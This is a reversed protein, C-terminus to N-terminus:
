KTSRSRALTSTAPELGTIRELLFFAVRIPTAKKKSDSRPSFGDQTEAPVCPAPLNASKVSYIAANLWWPLSRKEFACRKFIVLM